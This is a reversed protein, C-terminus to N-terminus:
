NYHSYEVYLPNIAIKVSVGSYGHIETWVRRNPFFEQMAIELFKARGGCNPNSAHHPHAIELNEHVYSAYSATFAIVIYTGFDYLVGTSRLYGTKKPTLEIARGLISKGLIILESHLTYPDNVTKYFKNFERYSALWDRAVQIDNIIDAAVRYTELLGTSDLGFNGLRDFKNYKDFDRLIIVKDLQEKLRAAREQAEKNRKDMEPAFSKAVNDLQEVVRKFDFDSTNFSEQVFKLYEDVPRTITRNIEAM